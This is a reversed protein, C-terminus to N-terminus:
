RLNKCLYSVNNRLFTKIILHNYDNFKYFRHLYLIKLHNVMYLFSKNTLNKFVLSFLFYFSNRLIENWWTYFNNRNLLQIYHLNDDISENLKKM